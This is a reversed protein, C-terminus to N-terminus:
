AAVPTITGSLLLVAQLLGFLMILLAGAFAIGRQVRKGRGGRLLTRQMGLMGLSIASVTLAVGAGMALTAIIGIGYNGNALCFLLVIIAGACPRLGVSAGAWFLTSGTAGAISAPAAVAQPLAYRVSSPNPRNSTNFTNAPLRAGPKRRLPPVLAHAPRTGARHDHGCSDLGKGLRRLIVAGYLAIALYSVAELTGAHGLLDHASIKLVGALVSVLAIASLAQVLAAWGSMMLGHSIRARQTLFYSGIVVKGHGPGLAHLVGYAFSLLVILGSGGWGADPQRALAHRIERNLASQWRITAALASRLPEPISVASPPEVPHAAGPAQQQGTASATVAAPSPGDERGFYDAAGATAICALCLLLGCIGRLPHSSIFQM